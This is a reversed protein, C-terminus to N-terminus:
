IAAIAFAEFIARESLRGLQTIACQPIHPSTAIESRWDSQWEELRKSLRQWVKLGQLPTAEGFLVAPELQRTPVSM